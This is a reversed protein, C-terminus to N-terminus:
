HADLGEGGLVRREEGVHAGDPPAERHTGGGLGPAGGGDACVLDDEAEVPPREAGHRM